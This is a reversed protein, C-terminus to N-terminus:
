GLGVFVVFDVFFLSFGVFGPGQGVFAVFAQDSWGGLVGLTQQKQQNM